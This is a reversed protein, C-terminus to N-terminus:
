FIFFGSVQIRSDKPKDAKDATDDVYTQQTLSYEVGMRWAPTIDFFLNADYWDEKDWVKAAAGLDKANGSSVHSYNVSLWAVNGPIYYQLGVIFSQWDVTHLKGMADYEAIGNDFNPTYVPATPLMQPNPLAANSVGGSLSQYLDADGSGTVFSGTLTLANDRDKASKPSVIPILADISFGWGTASNVTKPAASFENVDLRRLLGSVGIAAPGVASSTSGASHYGKWNNIMLKIGAEVDPLFDARAFPRTAAVAAEVNVADSKIVKSIKFQPVRSYVEGPVGQIEVTAPQFYTQWGFLHWTQGFLLDVYPTEIKGFLHRSRFTGNQFFSSESTSNVFPASGPQNGLFDMELQASAKIGKYEPAAAKVGIRSNRPSFQLQPHQGAFTHPKAIAANGRLDGLGSTSDWIADTEVFGYLSLDWKSTVTKGKPKEDKKPEDPAKEDPQLKAEAPQPPAEPGPTVVPATPAPQEGPTPQAPDAPPPQPQDAPAPQALAPAAIGALSAIM